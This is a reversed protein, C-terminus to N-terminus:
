CVETKSEENKFEEKKNWWVKLFLVCAIIFIICGGIINVFPLAAKGDVIFGNYIGSFVGTGIDMAGLFLLFIGFRIKNEELSTYADKLIALIAFTGIAVMSCLFVGVFYESWDFELIYRVMGDTFLCGLLVFFAICYCDGRNKLQREDYHCRKMSKKRIVISAILVMLLAFVAGLSVYFLQTNGTALWFVFLFIVLSLFIINLVIFRRKRKMHYGGFSNYVLKEM